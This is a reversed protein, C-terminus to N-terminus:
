VPLVAAKAALEGYGAKKGSAKHYVFGNETSCEEVPVNWQQAAASVLMTRATAGAKRIPEFRSRIAGSGGAVQNGYAKADLAAQIIVVKEWDVDLEEALLMPLATKVGQGIEPNPAVLTVLGSADISLYANPAFPTEELPLFSETAHALLQFGFMIGGGALASVRLFRRRSVTTNSM